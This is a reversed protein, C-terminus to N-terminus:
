ALSYQQLLSPDLAHAAQALADGSLLGTQAGYDSIVAHSNAIGFRIAEQVAGGRVLHGVFGSGFADGAGLTSVVKIPQSPYFYLCGDTSVYVGEAGNTVVVIKTGHSHVYKCFLRLDLSSQQSLLFPLAQSQRQLPDSGRGEDKAQSETVDIGLGSQCSLAGMTTSHVTAQEPTIAGLNVQKQALESLETGLNTENSGRMSQHDASHKQQLSEMLLTAEYSNLILTDIFSLSQRLYHAGARLQSSGPNIAVPIGRRQAQATLTPLLAATSGTLSTIYLQDIGDLAADPMHESALALNAGRNVLVTRDGTTLTIVFSFGTTAPTRVVFRTSVKNKALNDVIFDAQCDIGVCCVISTDFGQRAYSVATNHAGGGPLYAVRELEIKAGELLLLFRQKGSPTDFYAIEQHQYYVCVDQTAGGITMINM